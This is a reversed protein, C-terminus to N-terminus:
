LKEAWKEICGKIRTIWHGGDMIKPEEKLTVINKLLEKLQEPLYRKEQFIKLLLIYDDLTLPIIKPYLKEGNSNVHPASTMKAYFHIATNIHIKPAIFLSYVDKSKEQEIVRVVHRPVPEHETNYQTEGVSLTVEVVLVYDKYYFVMDPKGGPAFNRPQLDDDIDFNRCEHPLKLLKDIALFGRWVNWEFHTPRYGLIDKRNISDFYDVIKDVTDKGRHLSLMYEYEKLERKTETLNLLQKRLLLPDAIEKDIKVIKPEVKIATSKSLQMVEDLVRDTKGRLYDIKDQPLVPLAHDHLYELYDGNKKIVWDQSLIWDAIDRHTEAINIRSRRITLIGGMRFYRATADIYDRWANSKLILFYSLFRGEMEKSPAGKKKLDKLDGALRIAESTRSGKGGKVIAYLLRGDKARSKSKYYSRIYKLREDVEDRYLGKAMDCQQQIVYKRIADRGEERALDLGKRYRQISGVAKNVDGMAKLTNVIFGEDKSVGDCQKIIRLAAQFPLLNFGPYQNESKQPLSNPFQVKLLQRLWVDEEVYNDSLLAEGAKTIRAGSPVYKNGKKYCTAFGLENFASSWIRGHQEIQKSSKAEAPGYIGEQQLLELFRKQNEYTWPEGDFHEKLVKLGDKLRAAERLTTNGVCWQVHAM